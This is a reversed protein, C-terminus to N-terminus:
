NYARTQCERMKNDDTEDWKPDERAIKHLVLKGGVQSKLVDRAGMFRRSYDILSKDDKQKLNVLNRLADTITSMPYKNEQYSVSHEKIAALLM